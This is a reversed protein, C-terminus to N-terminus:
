GAETVFAIYEILLMMQGPRWIKLEFSIEKIFFVTAYRNTVLFSAM